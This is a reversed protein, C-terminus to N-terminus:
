DLHPIVAFATQENRTKVPLGDIFFSQSNPKTIFYQLLVKDASDPSNFYIRSQVPETARPHILVQSGPLVHFHNGDPSM